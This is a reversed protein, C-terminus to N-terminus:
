VRRERSDSQYAVRVLPIGHITTGIDELYTLAAIQGQRSRFTMTTPHISQIIGDSTNIELHNRYSIFQAIEQHCFCFKCFAQITGYNPCRCIGWVHRLCSQCKRLKIIEYILQISLSSQSEIDWCLFFPILSTNRIKTIIVVYCPIRGIRITHHM